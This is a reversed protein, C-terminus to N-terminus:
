RSTLKSFKGSKLNKTASMVDVRQPEKTSVEETENRTTNPQIERKVHHRENEPKDVKPAIEKSINKKTM